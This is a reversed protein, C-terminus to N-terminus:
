TVGRLWARFARVARAQNPDAVHQAIVELDLDPFLASRARSQYRGDSRVHVEIRGLRWIWVEGVGLGQYVELKDISSSTWDV